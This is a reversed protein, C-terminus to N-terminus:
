NLANGVEPYIMSVVQTCDKIGGHVLAVRMIIVPTHRTLCKHSFVKGTNVHVDPRVVLFWKEELEPVPTLQEGVGEAIAPQGQVFDPEDAGLTLG